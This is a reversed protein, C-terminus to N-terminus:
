RLQSSPTSLDTGAFACRLAADLAQARRGPAKAEAALSKWASSGQPSGSQCLADAHMRRLEERFADDPLTAPDMARLMVLAEGPAGRALRARAVLYRSLPADDAALRSLALRQDGMGLLWPGITAALRPDNTGALKATLSRREAPDVPLALAARYREGASSLDGARFALDGLATLLSGRLGEHGSKQELRGLAEEFIARARTEDGARRWSDGAKRLLAPDDSCLRSARRWLAEAESAHGRSSALGAERELVAVERACRRVFVSERSFRTEAASAVRPTVAVEDLFLHWEKELDALPRGMALAVDGQRYAALVSPAGYRDLLFRLFSGAATYARAPPASFFGRVGLLSDVSPLRGQDRMARTWSHVDDDGTPVELAVALGELLGVNVKVWSRAPLGLPGRAAASAIAHVLEHRLVPHPVGEDRLHIEALWPKAFSTRGGGVLARKEEANRYIWVRVRPPHELGLTDAVIRANFECDRLIREAEAPRKERPLSVVCRPGEVRGGLTLAIEDRDAPGARSGIGLALSAFVLGLALPRTRGTSDRGGALASSWALVAATWALTALRFLILRKEVPVAEDYLPGPWFGLLHDYAAAGPGLYGHALTIAASGTLVLAYLLTARLIRGRSAFGAATAVATALLASPVATLGFVGAGAWASCPSTLATRTAATLFVLGILAVLVSSAAFFGSMVRSHPASRNSKQAIDAAAIVRRAAAIGFMPGLLLASALSLVLGLDFGPTEFLPSGLGLAAPLVLLGAALLTTRSRLLTTMAHLTRLMTGHDIARM